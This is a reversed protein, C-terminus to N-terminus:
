YFRRAKSWKNGAISKTCSTSQKAIEKAKIGSPRNTTEKFALRLKIHRQSQIKLKCSNIGLENKGGGMEVLIICLHFVCFFTDAYRQCFTLKQRHCYFVMCKICNRWAYGAFRHCARTCLGM